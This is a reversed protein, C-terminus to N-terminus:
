DKWTASGVEAITKEILKKNKENDLNEGIIKKAAMLSISVMEDKMDEMFKSKQKLLEKETKEIIKRGEEKAESTTKEMYDEARKKADEIINGAEVKADKLKMEYERKLAETDEIRKESDRLNKEIYNKRKELFEKMPWYLYKRLLVYLLITSTLQLLMAFPSFNISINLGEM